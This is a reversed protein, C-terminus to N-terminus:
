LVKLEKLLDNILEVPVYAYVGGDFYENIEFLNSYDPLVEKVDLFNRDTDMLAFEMSTYEKLNKLTKRPSCYHGYSAQISIWLNNNIKTGRFMRFTTDEDFPMIKGITKTDNTENLLKIFEM